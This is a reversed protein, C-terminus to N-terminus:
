DPVALAPSAVTPQVVAPKAAARASARLLGYLGAVVLALAIVQALTITAGLFLAALAMTVAPAPVAIASALSVEIHKLANFWLSLEVYYALGMVVAATQFAPSTAASLVAGPGDLAFALPLLVLSAIGLRSSTVQNPTIPTHLLAQRLILHAVSWMAPVALAVAFFPSLGELRWTGGTALHFLAAVILLTCGIEVPGRRRGLWFSELGAAFLPYAQLAIAAGVAGVKDFALIYGWTALAFLSGTFLTVGLTRRREPRPLGHRFLGHEGSRWERWLLPLSFLFQWVSLWAAFTLAASGAPRGNALIPLLGLLFLCAFAQTIGLRRAAAAPGTSSPSPSSTRHM